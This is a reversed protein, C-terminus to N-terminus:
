KHVYFEELGLAQLPQYDALSAQGIQKIPIKKLLAKGQENQGLALLAKQVKIIVAAEVSPHAAIPHPAMKTTEYIVRLQEQVEPPQKNFTKYVGGGADTKGLVVNMYVANHTKVYKAKIDTHYKKKLETRPLLSAGLANPAPFAVKKNQLDGVNNFDRDKRVVIIGSLKRGVDKVMPLYGQAKNAVLLHYPNMYAFDFEGKEFEQEFAPINRSTKLHFKLGTSQELEQLIPKWITFIEPASYQPVVGISYVKEAKAVSLYGTLITAMLLAASIRLKKM